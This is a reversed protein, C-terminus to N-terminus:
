TFGSRRIEAELAAQVVRRVRRETGAVAPNLYPRPREAVWTWEGRTEEDAFVPHRGGYEFIASYKIGRAVVALGKVSTAVRISDRLASSDVLGQRAVNARAKAAIFEGGKRMEARVRNSARRDFARLRRLTDELGDVGGSITLLSM